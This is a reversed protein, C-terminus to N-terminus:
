AEGPHTLFAAIAPSVDIGRDIGRLIAEAQEALPGTGFLGAVEGAGSGEPMGLAKMWDSSAIPAHIAFGHLDATGAMGCALKAECLLRFAHLVDDNRGDFSFGSIEGASAPVGEMVELVLARLEEPNIGRGLVRPLFRVLGAPYGALPGEDSVALEVWQPRTADDIRGGAYLFFRPLEPSARLCGLFRQIPGSRHYPEGWESLVFDPNDIKYSELHTHAFIFDESTFEIGGQFDHAFFIERLGEFARKWIDERCTDIVFIRM